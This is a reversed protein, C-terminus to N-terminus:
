FKEGAFAAVVQVMESVEEDALGMAMGAHCYQNAANAMFLPLKLSNVTDMVLDSDKNMLGLTCPSPVKDLAATAVLDFYTNGAVGSSIIDRVQHLDLGLKKALFLMEMSAAQITTVLLQNCQKVAQGLGPIQGVVNLQGADELIPRLRDVLAPEGAAMLAMTGDAARAPGGTVPCDLFGVGRDAARRAAEELDSKRITSLCVIASAPGCAPLLKDVATLVQGGDLVFLFIVEALGPLEAPDTVAQGGLAALREGAAPAVDYGVMQYGKSTLQEALGLGMRGLGVLGITKKNM